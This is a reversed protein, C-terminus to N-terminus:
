SCSGDWLCRTMRPGETRSRATKLDIGLRARQSKPAEGRPSGSWSRRGSQRAVEQLARGSATIQALVDVCYRDGTVM